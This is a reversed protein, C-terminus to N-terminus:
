LLTTSFSIVCGTMEDRYFMMCDFEFMFLISFSTRRLISNIERYFKFTCYNNIKLFEFNFCFREVM